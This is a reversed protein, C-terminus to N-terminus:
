ASSSPTTSPRKSRWPPASLERWVQEMTRERDTVEPSLPSFLGSEFAQKQCQYDMAAERLAGQFSQDYKKKAASSCGPNARLQQDYNDQAQTHRAAFMVCNKCREQSANALLLTMNNGLKMMIALSSTPQQSAEPSLQSRLRVNLPRTMNLFFVNYHIANSPTAHRMIYGHVKSMHYHHALHVHCGHQMITHINDYATSSRLGHLVCCLYRDM